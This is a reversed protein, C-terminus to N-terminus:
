FRTKPYKNLTTKGAPTLGSNVKMYSILESDVPNLRNTSVCHLKYLQAQVTGGPAGRGITFLTTNKPLTHNRSLCTINDRFAHYIGSCACVQHQVYQVTLLCWIQLSYLTARNDVLWPNASGKHVLVLSSFWFTLNRGVTLNKGVRALRSRRVSMIGSASELSVRPQPRVPSARSSAKCAM